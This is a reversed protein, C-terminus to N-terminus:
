NRLEAAIKEADQLQMCNFHGKPCKEYGIKSCPRCSLNKVQHITFSNKNSPRYPYMGLDPVTNGWVSVIPVDYCSAIHMMGTDNTLVKASQAVISASGYLSYAGCANFISKGELSRILEDGLPQDEPGGVLLVPASVGNLIEILKDKPLRKTAFKAGVVVAIFAGPQVGLESVDVEDSADIPFDCPLGDNKVGLHSVAEFYRDVVHVDPLQNRKLKVLLWKKWNLKRFSRTPRRLRMKLSKTRLNNHLDIVWDYHEERLETVVEGISKDITYQKDIHPNTRIVGAFSQKTLFHLELEPLQTKLVRLVPTTLVIDGISSFRVVLIKM